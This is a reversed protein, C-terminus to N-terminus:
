IANMYIYVVRLRHERPIGSDKGLMCTLIYEWRKYVHENDYATQLIRAHLEVIETRIEDLRERDKDDKAKMPRFLAHFHGLHRGLPSTSTCEKWIKYKNMMKGKTIEIKLEKSHRRMSTLLYRSWEDDTIDTPDGTGDLLQEARDTDAGFGIIRIVEPTALPTTEAQRFHRINRNLILTEITPGDTIALYELETGEKPLPVLISSVGGPCNMKSPLEPMMQKTDKARKFIQAARKAGMEPNMAVFAAEQEEDISTKQTRQEKILTRCNKQAIRLATTTEKIDETLVIVKKLLAQKQAIQKTCDINNKLSSLRIRLINAATM